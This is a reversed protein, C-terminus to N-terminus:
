RLRRQESMINFLFRTILDEQKRNIKVFQIAAQRLRTREDAWIRVVRGVVEIEQPGTKLPITFKIIIRTEAALDNNILLRIGGGSLDISDAKLFVPEKGGIPIRAYDVELTIPVRVFDRLQVRTYEKPMALVFLPINDYRRGRTKTIFEYRTMDAIFSVKVQEGKSLVLPRSEKLPVSICFERENIDQVSSAYWDDDSDLRAVRINQNIRIWNQM